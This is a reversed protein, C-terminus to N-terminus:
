VSLTDDGINRQEYVLVVHHRDDFFVPRQDAEMAVSGASRNIKTRLTYSNKNANWKINTHVCVILAM